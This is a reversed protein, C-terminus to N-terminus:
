KFLCIFQQSLFAILVSESCVAGKPAIKAQDVNYTWVQRDLKNPYIHYGYSTGYFSRVM